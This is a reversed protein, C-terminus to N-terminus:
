DIKVSNIVRLAVENAPPDAQVFRTAILWVDKGNTHVFGRTAFLVGGVTFTGHLLVTSDDRVKTLNEADSVGPNRGSAELFGAGFNRLDSLTVPPKKVAFRFVFISIEKSQYTYAKAPTLQQGPYDPLTVGLLLPEGPLEISLALETPSYRLWKVSDRTISNLAPSATLSSDSLEKVDESTLLPAKKTGSQQSAVTTFSFMTLFGTLLIAASTPKM